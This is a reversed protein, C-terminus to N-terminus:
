GNTDAKRINFNKSLKMKVAKKAPITVNKKTKPVYVTREPRDIIEITMFNKIHVSGSETLASKLIEILQNIERKGKVQSISRQRSYYKIFEDTNLAFCRLEIQDSIQM